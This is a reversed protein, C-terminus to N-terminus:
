ILFIQETNHIILPLHPHKTYPHQQQMQQQPQEFNKQQIKQELVQFLEDTNWLEGNSIMTPVSKIVKPFPADEIAM